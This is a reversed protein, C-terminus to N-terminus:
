LEGMNCHLLDSTTIQMAALSGKSFKGLQLNIISVASCIM